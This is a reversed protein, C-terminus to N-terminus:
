GQTELHREYAEQNADRNSEQRERGIQRTLHGNIANVCEEAVYDALDDALNQLYEYEYKPLYWVGDFLTAGGSDMDVPEFHKQIIEKISM